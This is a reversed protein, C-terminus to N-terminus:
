THDDSPAPFRLVQQTRCCPSRATPFVGTSFLIRLQLIGRAWRDWRRIGVTSAVKSGCRSSASQPSRTSKQNDIGSRYYRNEVTAQNEWGGAAMLEGVTFQRVDVCVRAFRHRLSHWVHVWQKRPRELEVYVRREEDWDSYREIWEQKTWGAAEAAPSFLDANFESSYLLRGNVPFLLAEPNEGRAQEALAQQRRALMEARLPYGTLSTVALGTCRRKGGKPPKRRLKGNKKTADENLQWWIRVEPVGGDIVDHATLQMQEAWRPGSAAAFEVMLRGRGPLLKEMEEGLRVIAPVSPADEEDVYEESTGVKRTRSSRDPAETGVIAPDPMVTRVPLLDSTEATFYGNSAGWRLFCRLVSTNGQVGSRTGAQARMRDALRRDLDVCYEDRLIRLMRAMRRKVLTHQRDSWDLGPKKQNRGRQTSTWVAAADSIRSYSLAGAARTELEDISRAKAKAEELTVGATTRGAKGDARRWTCRFYPSDGKPALISVVGVKAVPKARSM